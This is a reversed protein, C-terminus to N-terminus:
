NENSAGDVTVKMEVRPVNNTNNSINIKGKFKRRTQLLSHVFSGSGGRGSVVMVLVVEVVVDMM